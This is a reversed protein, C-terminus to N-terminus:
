QLYGLNSLNVVVKTGSGVQSEVSIKGQHLDVCRKVVALGLGSGSIDQVNKGRSFLTYLNQQDDLAVGVGEDRIEFTVVHPECIMTFYVTSQPDSYKLANSLLNSLISYLLKEDVMAHASRGRKSFQIVRQVEGFTQFDELLNLCFTQMELSMPHFDMKGADARAVMLLDNLQQTMLKASSQIRHLNKLQTSEVLTPKLSEKLLHASGTILSLPTRFEHSVMSFFQLKLESLENRHAIQRQRSEAKERRLRQRRLIVYIGLLICFTLVNGLSEIMLRSRLSSQAKSRQTDVLLKEQGQLEGLLQHVMRRTQRTKIILLDQSSPEIQRQDFTAISQQFLQIQQSILRDLQEIKPRSDPYRLVLKLSSLKLQLAQVSLSYRKREEADKFLFYGRRASEADVLDTEVGNLLSLIEYAQEVQRHDETLQTANQYSVISLGAMLALALGFGATIRKGGPAYRWYLSRAINKLRALIRTLLSM